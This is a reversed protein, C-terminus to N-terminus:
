RVAGVPLQPTPQWSRVVRKCLRVFAAAADTGPQLSPLNIHREGRLFCIYLGRPLWRALHSTHSEGWCRLDQMSEAPPLLARM